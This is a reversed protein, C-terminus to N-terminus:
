RRSGSSGALVSCSVDCISRACLRAGRPRDRALISVPAPLEPAAAAAPPLREPPGADRPDRSDAVPFSPLQLEARTYYSSAAPSEARGRPQLHVAGPAGRIPGQAVRGGGRARGIVLCQGLLRAARM